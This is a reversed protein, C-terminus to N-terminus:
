DHFHFGQKRLRERAAAAAVAANSHATEDPTFNLVNIAYLFAAVHKEGIRRQGGVYQFRLQVGGKGRKMWRWLSRVSPHRGGVRPFLKTADRVSLLQM